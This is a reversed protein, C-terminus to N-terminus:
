FYYYCYFFVAIVHSILEWTMATNEMTSQWNALKPVHQNFRNFTHPLILIKEKKVASSM